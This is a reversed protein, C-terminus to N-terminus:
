ELVARADVIMGDKENLIFPNIDLESIKPQKKPLQSLKVLADVLAKQKLKKGRATMIKNGKLDHLMSEADKEAIPCVRFSVDKYIEVYIGGIGVLVVHGFTPDKKLGLIFEAGKVFEQVMIKPALKKLASFDKELQQASHVVRVANQETKHVIKQSLAKLVIPYNVQKAFKEADDIKTVVAHKALTGVGKVFDAATAADLVRM